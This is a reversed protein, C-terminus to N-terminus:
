AVSLQEWYGSGPGGAREGPPVETWQKEESLCLSDSKKPFATAPAHPRGSTREEQVSSVRLDTPCGQTLM